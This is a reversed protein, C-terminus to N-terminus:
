RRRAGWGHARRQASGGAGCTGRGGIGCVMGGGGAPASSVARRSSAGRSLARRSSAEVGRRGATHQMTALAVAEAHTSCPLYISTGLKYWATGCTVM